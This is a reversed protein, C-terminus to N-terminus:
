EEPVALFRKKKKKKIHRKWIYQCIFHFSILLLCKVQVHLNPLQSCSSIRKVHGINMKGELMIM